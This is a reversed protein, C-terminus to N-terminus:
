GRAARGVRYGEEICTVNVSVLKPKKAFERKAQELLAEFPLIGTAGVYAGLMVMNAAKGTGAEIAVQNANVNVVSIDTRAPAVPILSKNIIAFGGPRMMSCFKDLSPRNMVVADRPHLVIPSAIPEDGIIVTCNATGGRMEPGYSPLWVVEKGLVM